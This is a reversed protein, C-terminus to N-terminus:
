RSGPQSGPRRDHPPQGHPPQGHPPQGHPPQERPPQDRPPQGHPPGPQRPPPAPRVPPPPPAPRVPPAPPHPQPGAGPPQPRPQPRPPMPPQPPRPRHSWEDRQRYWPRDRYHQNWYEGLVFGFVLLGLAPGHNIVPVTAGQYPSGINAAYVWGRLGNGIVDCWSYDPLCGQVDLPTGQALIAVVPYDRAPGARLHVNKVATAEHASAGAGACVGLCATITLRALRNM